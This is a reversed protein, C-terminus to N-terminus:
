PTVDNRLSGYPAMAAPKRTGHGRVEAAHHRPVDRVGPRSLSLVQLPLVQVNRQM